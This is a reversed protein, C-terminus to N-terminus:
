EIIVEFDDVNWGRLDEYAEKSKETNVVMTLYAEHPLIVQEEVAKKLDCNSYDVTEFYIGDEKGSDVIEYDSVRVKVTKSLTISVCVEIEREPTKKENYPAKSNFETGAPYYGSEKM